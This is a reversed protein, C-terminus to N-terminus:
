INVHILWLNLLDDTVRSIVLFVNKGWLQLVDDYKNFKVYVFVYLGSFFLKNHIYESMKIGRLSGHYKM